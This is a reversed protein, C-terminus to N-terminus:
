GIYLDAAFWDWAFTGLKQNKLGTHVFYAASTMTGGSMEARYGYAVVAHNMTCDSNYDKFMGIVTPKNGSVNSSVRGFVTEHKGGEARATPESFYISDFYSNLGSVAQNFSCNGTGMYTQLLQHFDETTGHHTSDGDEYETPVFQDNVYRDYFGLMIASAIQVCTGNTNTGFRDGLQKTFYNSSTMYAYQTTTPVGKVAERREMGAAEVERIRKVDAKSLETGDAIMFYKGGVTRIYNMPGGYYLEGKIVGAYPNECDLMMEEVVGSAADYVAYGLPSLTYLVYAKNESFSGLRQTGTVSYESKGASIEAAYQRVYEQAEEETRIGTQKSARSEALVGFGLSFVLLLMAMALATVKFLKSNKM